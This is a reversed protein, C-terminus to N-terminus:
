TQFPSPSRCNLLCPRRVLLSAVNRDHGPLSGPEPVPKVVKTVPSGAFFFFLSSRTQRERYWIVERGGAPYEGVGGDDSKAGVRGGIVSSRRVPRPCLTHSTIVPSTRACLYVTTLLRLASVPRMLPWLCLWLDAHARRCLQRLRRCGM